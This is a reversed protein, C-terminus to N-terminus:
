LRQMELADFTAEAEQLQKLAYDAGERITELIAKLSKWSTEAMPEIGTARIAQTAQTATFSHPTELTKSASHQEHEYSCIRASEGTLFEQAEWDSNLKRSSREVLRGAVSNM